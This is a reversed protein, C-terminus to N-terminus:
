VSEVIVIKRQAKQIDIEINKIDNIVTEIDNLSTLFHQNSSKAHGKENLIKREKNIQFLMQNLLTGAKILNHNLQKLEAYAARDIPKEGHELIWRIYASIKTRGTRTKFGGLIARKEIDAKEQPSIRVKINETKEAM